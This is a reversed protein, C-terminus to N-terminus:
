MSLTFSYLCLMIINIKLNAKELKNQIRNFSEKNTDTHFFIFIHTYM